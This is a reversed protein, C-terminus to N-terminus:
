LFNHKKKFNINKNILKKYSFLFNNIMKEKSYKKIGEESINKYDFNKDYLFEDVKKKLEDINGYQIFSSSNKLGTEKTGGEDFGIIPVGCCSAELCTTPFNERKSCILFLDAMSYYKALENQDSLLGVPIINEDFKENLDKVGILIFKINKDKYQKALELIWRGGKGESLIDPAVSLIIKEDKLNYKSKLEQFDRYYFIETNIGNHITLIEKDKLFSKRVRKELWESPTTIILNDFDKMLNKKDNFMKKTFDLFLSKPYEKVRPCNGCESKWKECEYAHGCKGTYMFECHFTWITKINRKKIFKILPIINVFYSHLEHIHIVDPNYEDIFKILKKTACPSFYGMLGTVRTLFAHIKTELDSSFKYINKEKILPGRGYCIAAEYGEKKNIEQYLDYVIKGTSSNKCNVDILLVKM